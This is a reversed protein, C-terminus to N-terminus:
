LRYLQLYQCDKKRLTKKNHYLSRKDYTRSIELNGHCCNDAIRSLPESLWVLLVKACYFSLRPPSMVCGIRYRGWGCLVCNTYFLYDYGVKKPPLITLLKFSSMEITRYCLIISNSWSEFLFDIVEGLQLTIKCCSTKCNFHKYTNYSYKTM